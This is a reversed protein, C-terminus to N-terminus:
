CIQPTGYHIYGGLKLDVGQTTQGPISIVEHVRSKRQGKQVVLTNKVNPYIIPCM